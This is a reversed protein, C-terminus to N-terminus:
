GASGTGSTGWPTRSDRTACSRPTPRWPGGPALRARHRSALAMRVRERRAPDTRAADRPDGHGAGALHEEVERLDQRITVNRQKRRERRETRPKASLPGADGRSASSPRGHLGGRASSDAVSTGAPISIRDEGSEDGVARSRDATAPDTPRARPGSNERARLTGTPLPDTPGPARARNGSRARPRDPNPAARGRACLPIARPRTDMDFGRPRVTANVTYPAVRARARRDPHMWAPPTSGDCEVWDSIWCCPLDTEAARRRSIWTTRLGEGHDTRM